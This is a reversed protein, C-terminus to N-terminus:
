VITILQTLLIGAGITVNSTNNFVSFLAHSAPKLLHYGSHLSIDSIGEGVGIFVITDFDQDIPV